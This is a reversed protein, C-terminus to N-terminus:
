DREILFSHTISEVHKFRQKCSNVVPFIRLNTNFNQSTQLQVTKFNYFQTSPYKHSIIRSFLTLREFFSAFFKFIEQM